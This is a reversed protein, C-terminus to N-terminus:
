FLVTCRQNGIHRRGSAATAVSAQATTGGTACRAVKPDSRARDRTPVIVSITPATTDAAM